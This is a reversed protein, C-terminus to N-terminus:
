SASHFCGSLLCGLCQVVAGAMRSQAGDELEQLVPLATFLFLHGQEAHATMADLFDGRSAGSYFREDDHEM